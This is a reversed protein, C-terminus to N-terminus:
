SKKEWSATLPRSRSKRLINHSFADTLLGAKYVEEAPKKKESVCFRKGLSRSLSCHRSLRVLEEILYVIRRPLSLPRSSDIRSFAVVRESCCVRAGTDPAVRKERSYQKEVGTERAVRTNYGRESARRTIIWPGYPGRCITWFAM